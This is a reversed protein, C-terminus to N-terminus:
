IRQSCWAHILLTQLFLTPPEFGSETIMAAMEPQPLLAIDDCFDDQYRKLHEASMGSYAVNDAM